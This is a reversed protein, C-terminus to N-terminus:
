TIGYLSDVDMETELEKKISMKGITGPEPKRKRDTILKKRIVILIKKIKNGTSQRGKKEKLHM